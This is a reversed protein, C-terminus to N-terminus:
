GAADRDFGAFAAHDAALDDDARHARRRPDGGDAGAADAAARDGARSRRHPFQQGLGSGSLAPDGAPVVPHHRDAAGRRDARQPRSQRLVGHHDAQLARGHGARVAGPVGADAGPFDPALVTQETRDGHRLPLLPRLANAPTMRQSFGASPFWYPVAPQLFFGSAAIEPLRHHFKARFGPKSMLRIKAVNRHGVPNKM